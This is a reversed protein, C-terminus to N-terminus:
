GAHPGPSRVQGDIPGRQLNFRHKAWDSRKLRSSIADDNGFARWHVGERVFGFQDLFARASTAKRPTLATVRRCDLQDFPYSLLGTIISKSLWRKSGSAFSLEIDRFAPRWNHYVVGGLLEGDASAVGIATSPGFDVLGHMAMQPIREAVWRAVLQDQGVVLHM